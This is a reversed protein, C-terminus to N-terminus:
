VSREVDYRQEYVLFRDDAAIIQEATAVLHRGALVAAGDLAQRASELLQFSGPRGEDGLRVLDEGRLDSNAILVSIHPELVQEEGSGRLSRGTYLVLAAPHQERALANLARRRDPDAFGRVAAFASSGGLTINQLLTVVAAELDSLESM